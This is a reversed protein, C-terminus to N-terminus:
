RVHRDDHLTQLAGTVSPPDYAPTDIGLAKCAGRAARVAEQLTGRLSAAGNASGAVSIGRPLRDPLFSQSADDFRLGGRAHALLHVRPAWGGSVALLDCELRTLRRGNAQRVTVQRIGKDGRTAAIRAGAYVGIGTNSLRRELDPNLRERLDVVAAVEFGSEALDFVTQYGTDNNTAIVARRGPVVAFRNLYHRVSGALM